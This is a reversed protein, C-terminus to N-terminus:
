GTGCDQAQKGIARYPCDAMGILYLIASRNRSTEPAIASSPQYTGTAFEFTFAVIYRSGYEWDRSTGSDVSLGSAQEFPDLAM